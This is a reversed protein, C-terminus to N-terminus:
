QKVTGYNVRAFVKVNNASCSKSRIIFDSREGIAIGGYIREVHNQDNSCTFDHILRPSRGYPRYWIAGEVVATNSKSVSVEFNRIFGASGYPVTSSCNHTQSEGIQIIAFVNATTVAHRFTLTGVNFTTDDGTDYICRGIRWATIGTSTSAGTLPIWDTELWDTSTESALYEFRVSGTDNADSRVVEIEEVDGVPFGTYVGSGEWIDEPVTATDVDTNIGFRDRLDIGYYRHQGADIEFDVSRVILADADQAITGNLPSTLPGFQGCATELRMYTANSGSANEVVIRFFERAIVLRKPPEVVGPEFKYTLTSDINVGDVSFQAKYTLAVDSAIAIMMEPCYRQAWGGTFTEGNDLAVNSTNKGSVYTLSFEGTGIRQKAM